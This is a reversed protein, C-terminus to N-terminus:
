HAITSQMNIEKKDTHHIVNTKVKRQVKIGHVNKIHSNYASKQRYSKKCIDCTYPREGTHIRMHVNLNHGVTFRKGCVKCLYPKEGTHVRLHDKWGHHQKFTRDCFQCKYPAEGTHIRVHEKYNSKRGFRKNCYTCVFADDTHIKCHSRYNCLYKYGKGCTECVFPKEASSIHRGRKMTSRTITKVQKVAGKVTINAETKTAKAVSKNTTNQQAQLHLKPHHIDLVTFSNANNNDLVPPMANNDIPPLVLPRMTNYQGNHNTIINSCGELVGIVDGNANYVYEGNMRTTTNKNNWNCNNNSRPAMPANMTNCNNNVSSFQDTYNCCNPNMHMANSSEIPLINGNIASPPATVIMKTNCDM